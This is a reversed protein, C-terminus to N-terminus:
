RKEDAIMESAALRDTLRPLCREVIEAPTGTRGAVDAAIGAPTWTGDFHAPYLWDGSRVFLVKHRSPAYFLLGWAEKRVRVGDALRGTM